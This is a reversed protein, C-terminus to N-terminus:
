CQNALRVPLAIEYVELRWDLDDLPVGRVRLLWTVLFSRGRAVVLEPSYFKCGVIRM